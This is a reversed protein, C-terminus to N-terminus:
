FLMLHLGISRWLITVTCFTRVDWINVDNGTTAAGSPCPVVKAWGVPNFVYGGPLIKAPPLSANMDFLFIGVPFGM